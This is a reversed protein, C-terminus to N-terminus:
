KTCRAMEEMAAEIQKIRRSIECKKILLLKKKEVMEDFNLLRVKPNLLNEVWEPSMIKM